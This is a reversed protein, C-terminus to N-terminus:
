LSEIVKKLKESVGAAVDALAPNGIAGMAAMPNVASVTTTGDANQYVVVNCPMMLGIDPEASISQYAFPPNCAGLIRYPRITKDLKKKMTAQVDIESLVGFGERSLAERVRIEAQEPSVSMHTKFGYDLPEM